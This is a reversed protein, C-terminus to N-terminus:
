EGGKIQEKPLAVQHNPGVETLPYFLSVLYYFFLYYFLLFRRCLFDFFFILWCARAKDLLRRARCRFLQSF